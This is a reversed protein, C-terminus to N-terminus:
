RYKLDNDKPTFNSRHSRPYGHWSPRRPVQHDPPRPRRHYRYWSFRSGGHDPKAAWSFRSLLLFIRMFFCMTPCSLIMYIQINCRSEFSSLFIYQIQLQFHSLGKGCNIEDSYDKCDARGDCLTTDPVCEESQQCAFLGPGCRQVTVKGGASPSMTLSSPTM